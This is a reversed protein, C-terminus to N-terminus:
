LRQDVNEEESMIENALEAGTVSLHTATLRLEVDVLDGIEKGTEQGVEKWADEDM